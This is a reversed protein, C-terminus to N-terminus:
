NGELSLLYDAIIGLDKVDLNEYSPMMINRFQNSYEDFRPDNSYDAPSRLYNILEDRNWHKKANYLSPGLNRNGRLDQGHCATCGNQKILTLGPAEQSVERNTQQSPEEQLYDDIHHPVNVSDDKVLDSLVFLFIFVLLFATVWKQANTM